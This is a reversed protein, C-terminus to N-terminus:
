KSDEVTSSKPSVDKVSASAKKINDMSSIRIVGNEKTSLKITNPIEFVGERVLRNKAVHMLGILLTEAEGCSIELDNSILHILEDNVPMLNVSSQLRSSPNMGPKYGSARSRTLKFLPTKAIGQDAAKLLIDCFGSLFTSIPRKGLGTDAALQQNLNM